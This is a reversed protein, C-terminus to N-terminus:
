TKRKDGYVKARLGRLLFMLLADRDETLARRRAEAELEDISSVLASEWAAAFRPFKHFVRYAHMKLIGAEQCSGTVNGSKALARLFKKRWPRRQKEGTVKTVADGTPVEDSNALMQPLEESMKLTYGTSM